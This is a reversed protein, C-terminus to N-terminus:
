INKTTLYDLDEKNINEMVILHELVYPCKPPPEDSVNLMIFPNKKDVYCDFSWLSTKEGTKLDYEPMQINKAFKCKNCLKPNIM